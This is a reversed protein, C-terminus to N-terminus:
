KESAPVSNLTQNDGMHNTRNKIRKHHFSVKSLSSLLTKAKQSTKM